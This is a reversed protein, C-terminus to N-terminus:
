KELQEPWIGQATVRLERGGRGMNAFRVSEGKLVSGAASWEEAEVPGM